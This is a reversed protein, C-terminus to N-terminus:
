LNNIRLRGADFVKVFRRVTKSQPINAPRGAPNHTLYINKSSINQSPKKPFFKEELTKQLQWCLGRKTRKCARWEIKLTNM